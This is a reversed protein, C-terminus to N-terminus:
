RACLVQHASVSQRTYSVRGRKSLAEEKPVGIQRVMALLDENPSSLFAHDFPNRLGAIGERRWVAQTHAHALDALSITKRQSDIANWVAQRLFKTLYGMLGGTACYCRFGMDLSDLAPLDFHEGISEQFSGLIGIFEDRHEDNSWEFRPMFIPSLFRGALQENQDLVAQCTPLGAVVLAVNSDDVLIKLWDAVHHM